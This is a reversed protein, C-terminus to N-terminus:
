AAEECLLHTANWIARYLADEIEHKSRGREENFALPECNITERIVAVAAKVHTWDLGLDFEARMLSGHLSFLKADSSEAKCRAGTSDRAGDKQTWGNRNLIATAARILREVDEPKVGYWEVCQSFSAERRGNEAPAIVRGVTM